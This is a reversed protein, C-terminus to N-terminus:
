SKKIDPYTRQLVVLQVQQAQPHSQSNAASPLGNRTGKELGFEFPCHILDRCLIVDLRTSGVASFVNRTGKEFNVRM